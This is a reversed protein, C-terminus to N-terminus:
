EDHKQIAVNIITQSHQQSLLHSSDCDALPYLDTTGTLAPACLLRIITHSIHSAMPKNADRPALTKLRANDCQKITIFLIVFLTCFLLTSCDQSNILSLNNEVTSTHTSLSALVPLPKGLQMIKKLIKRGQLMTCAARCYNTALFCLFVFFSSNSLLLTRQKKNLWM